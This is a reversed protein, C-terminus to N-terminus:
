ATSAALRDEVEALHEPSADIGGAYDRLTAGVDEVSILASELAALSGPIETRLAGTKSRNARRACRRPLRPMARMRLDFANMAANDIKEANALVRKENELREDEGPQLKADEIERKSPGCISCAASRARRTGTRRHRVSERGSRFRGQVGALQSIPSRTWCPLGRPDMLPLSLKM